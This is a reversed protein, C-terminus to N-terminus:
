HALSQHQLASTATLSDTTKPEGCTSVVTRCVRKSSRAAPGNGPVQRRMESLWSTHELSRGPRRHRVPHAGDSQISLGPVPRNLRRRFGRDLMCGSHAPKDGCSPFPRRLRVARRLLSGAPPSPFVARLHRRGRSPLRRTQISLGAM